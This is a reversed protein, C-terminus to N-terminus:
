TTYFEFMNIKHCCSRKVAVADNTAIHELLQRKVCVYSCQIQSCRAASRVYSNMMTPAISFPGFKTWIGALIESFNNLAVENECIKNKFFKWNFFQGHKSFSHSTSASIGSFISQDTLRFWCHFQKWIVGFTLDFFRIYFKLFDFLPVSFLVILIILEFESLM